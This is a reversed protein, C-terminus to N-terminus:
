LGGMILVGGAWIWFKGSVYTFPALVYRLKVEEGSGVGLSGDANPSKKLLRPCGEDCYSNPIEKIKFTNRVNLLNEIPFKDLIIYTM